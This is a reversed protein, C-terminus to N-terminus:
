YQVGGACEDANNDCKRVESMGIIVTPYFKIVVSEARTGADADFVPPRFYYWEASSFVEQPSGFEARVEAKTKGLVEKEFEEKTYQRVEPSVAPQEGAAPESPLDTAQTNESATLYWGLGLGLM